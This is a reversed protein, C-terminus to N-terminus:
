DLTFVIMVFVIEIKGVFKFKKKEKKERWQTLKLSLLFRAVVPNLFM